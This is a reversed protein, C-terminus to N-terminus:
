EDRTLTKWNASCAPVDKRVPGPENKPLLAHSGAGPKPLPRRNEALAGLLAGLYGGFCGFYVGWWLASIAVAVPRSYPLCAGVIGGATGLFFAGLLFGTCRDFRLRRVRKSRPLDERVVFPAIRPKRDKSHSAHSMVNEKKWVSCL